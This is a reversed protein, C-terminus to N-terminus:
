PQTRPLPAILVTGAQITDNDTLNPNASLLTEADTNLAAALTSVDTEIQAVVLPPIALLTSTELLGNIDPNAASLQAEPIGTAASVGSLTSGAEAYFTNPVLVVTGPLLIDDLPGNVRRLQDPETKLYRALADIPQRGPVVYVEPISALEGELNEESPPSLPTPYSADRAKEVIATATPPSTEAGPSAADGSCAALLCIVALGITIRKTGVM